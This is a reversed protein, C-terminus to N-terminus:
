NAEWSYDVTAFGEQYGYLKMRMSNRTVGSIKIYENGKNIGNGNFGSYEITIGNYLKSKVRSSDILAGIKWGVLPENTDADYLQIDVDVKSTLSIYLNKMGAPIDGPVEVLSKHPIQQKFNGNGAARNGSQNGEYSYTVTAQGEKYGYFKMQLKNRTTGTIKIYEHGHDGCVIGNYGSYEITVGNYDVSAVSGNDILAGINWGVLPIDADADFLQIDVDVEANLEVYFNKIGAPIEGPVDVVARSSVFQEFTGGGMAAGGEPFCFGSCNEQAHLSTLTSLLFTIGLTTKLIFYRM